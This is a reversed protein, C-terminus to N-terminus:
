PVDKEQNVSFTLKFSIIFLNQLTRKLEKRSIVTIALIYSLGFTLKTRTQSLMLFRDEKSFFSQRLVCAQNIMCNPPIIRFNDGRILTVVPAKTQFGLM